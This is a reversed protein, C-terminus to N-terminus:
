RNQNRYEGPTIGTQKKFLRNFYTVNNFGVQLSVEMIDDKTLLLLHKAHDIRIQNVYDTFNMGTEKKFLRCLYQPHLFYLQALRSLKLNRNYYTTVYNQVAEIVWHNTETYIPSTNSAKKKLKTNENLTMLIHGSLIDAVERYEDLAEESVPMVSALAQHMLDSSVGTIRCIRKIRNSVQLTHSTLLFNGIYLVCVLKDHYFVPKVIETIGMYCHGIFTQKQQLAKAICFSKCRLCSRMGAASTKACDCFYRSHITYRIPLHLEPVSHIIGSTDHICIHFDRDKSIWKITRYLSNYGAESNNM